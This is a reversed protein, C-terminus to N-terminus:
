FGFFLAFGDGAFAAVQRRRPLFVDFDAGGEFLECFGLIRDERADRQRIYPMFRGVNERDNPAALDLM